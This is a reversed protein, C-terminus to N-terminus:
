VDPVRVGRNINGQAHLFIWYVYKGHSRAGKWIYYFINYPVDPYAYTRPWGGSTFHIFLTGLPQSGRSQTENRVWAVEGVHSSPRVVRKWDLNYISESEGSLAEGQESLRRILEELTEAM